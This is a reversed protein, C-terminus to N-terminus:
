SFRAPCSMASAQALPEVIGTTLMYMLSAMVASIEKHVLTKYGVDIELKSEVESANRRAGDM